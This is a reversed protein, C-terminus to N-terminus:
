KGCHIRRSLTSEKAGFPGTTGGRAVVVTKLSEQVTRLFGNPLYPHCQIPNAPPQQLYLLHLRRNPLLHPPVQLSTPYYNHPSNPRAM